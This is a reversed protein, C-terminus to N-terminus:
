FCGLFIVVVVGGGGGGDGIDYQDFQLTDISATMHSLITARKNVYLMILKEELGAALLSTTDVELIEDMEHRGHMATDDSGHM